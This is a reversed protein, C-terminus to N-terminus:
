HGSYGALLRLILRRTSKFAMLQVYFGLPHSRLSGWLASPGAWRVGFSHRLWKRLLDVYSPSAQAQSPEGDFLGTLDFFSVSRWMILLKRLFSSFNENRANERMKPRKPSGSLKTIEMRNLTFILFNRARKPPNKQPTLIQIFTRFLRFFLSINGM